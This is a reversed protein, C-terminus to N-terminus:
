DHKENLEKKKNIGDYTPQIVDQVDLKGGKIKDASSRISAVRLLEPCVSNRCRHILQSLGGRYRDPNM